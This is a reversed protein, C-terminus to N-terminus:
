LKTRLNANWGFHNRDHIIMDIKRVKQCSSWIDIDGIEKDVPVLDGGPTYSTQLPGPSDAIRTEPLLGEHSFPARNRPFAGASKKAVRGPAGTWRCPFDAIIRLPM